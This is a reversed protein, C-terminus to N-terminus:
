PLDMSLFGNPLVPHTRMQMQMHFAITQQGFAPSAGFGLSPLLLTGAILVRISM